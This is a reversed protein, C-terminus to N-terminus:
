QDLFISLKAKKLSRPFTEKGCKTYLKKLFIFTHMLLHTKPTMKNLNKIANFM